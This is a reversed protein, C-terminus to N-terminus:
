KPAVGERCEASLLEPRYEFHMTDYHQWRGGWIFGEAEFADVVAQPVSNHWVLPEGRRTWRWYHARDVNLDIAIGWAHTSLNKSRFIRRWAWTGGINVLFPRLKPDEKVQPTLRDVVRSLAPAALEHFPYRLGFFRVKALRGAVEERSSGYTAKLLEEVRIRGPDELPGADAEDIARIPGAVYPARYLEALTPAAEDTTGGDGISGGDSTAVWAIWTGNALELGWGGDERYTVTGAYWTPLCALGRPPVGGDPRAPGAGTSSLVLAVALAPLM